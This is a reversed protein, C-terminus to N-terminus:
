RLYSFVYMDPANPFRTGPNHSGNRLYGMAHVIDDMRRLTQLPFQESPAFTVGAANWNFIVPPSLHIAETTPGKGDAPEKLAPSSLIICLRAGRTWRTIM